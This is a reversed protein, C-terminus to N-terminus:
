PIISLTQTASLVQAGGSMQGIFINSGEAKISTADCCIKNPSIFETTAFNGDILFISNYTFNEGEAFLKGDEIYLNSLVIDKSGFKLNTAIPKSIYNYLYENGALIDYEISKLADLYQSEDNYPSNEYGFLYDQHLKTVIGNNMGLDYLVKSTLQYAELDIDNKDLGINDWIVYETEFLNKNSLEENSLNLNPLHDGYFVIVTDEGLANVANILDDIFLDMEYIQNIYYEISNKYKENSINTINVNKKGAIEDNPYSGHGQVSITYIFDQNETSTLLDLIPEILFTDKAWGLPTRENILMYESSTFTDFGLNSFVTNRNYFNGEHNHIAHTSYNSEKLAYNISESTKVNVTTNYPYEGPAFFDLNLGTLVEFETNATGGGITSISFAGTSYNEKLKRFNAIPDIDCKLGEILFPDFFSELQIMIINPLNKDSSYSIDSSLAKANVTNSDDLSYLISEISNQSYIEPESIGNNLLTTSFCYTFGNEKYVSDLDWFNNSVISNKLALSNCGKYAMFIVFIMGLSLLYNIKFKTKPAFIFILVLLTLIFFLAIVIYLIEKKSMYNNIIKLGSKVLKLDSGTLPTGRLNLLINNGIAAIVWIVSIVSYSFTKKKTLLTISLTLSIILVNFLFTFGKNSIFNISETFSGRSICDVIFALLLSILLLVSLPYILYEGFQKRLNTM